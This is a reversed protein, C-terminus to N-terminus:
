ANVPPDSPEPDDPDSVAFNLPKIQPGSSPEVETSETDPEVFAPAPIVEATEKVKKPKPALDLEQGKRVAKHGLARLEHQLFRYLRNTDTINLRSGGSTKVVFAIENQAMVDDQAGEGTWKELIFRKIEKKRGAGPRPTGRRKTKKKAAM